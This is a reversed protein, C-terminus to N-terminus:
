PTFRVAEAPPLVSVGADAEFLSGAEPCDDEQEEPMGETATTLVLKVGGGHSLLCPCTVRPSGPTQWEAVAQGSTLDFRVARGHPVPDPNYFAVIATGEGGDRMGDPFGPEAKLDLAVGDLVAVRSGLDLRYRKVTKTPTDIDFLVLEGGYRAFVKGNSCTQGPALLSVVDDDLTYLYLNAIPDKFKVDKTGFVVARGGPVVEADNIMTRPSDDPITALRHWTGADLDFTGLQKDMGVFVVGPRDTPLVFGPRGPLRWTETEGDDWFRVHLAGGTAAPATQINVWILADRDDLRVPRPGEPLFRDPADDSRYLVRATHTPLM